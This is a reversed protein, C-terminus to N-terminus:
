DIINYYKINCTFIIGLIFEIELDDLGVRKLLQAYALIELFRIQQSQEDTFKGNFDGHAVIGRLDSLSEGIKDISFNKKSEDNYLYFINPVSSELAALLVTYSNVIKNKLGVSTDTTGIRSIVKEIYKKEEDTQAVKSFKKVEGLVRDRIQKVATIDAKIYLDKNARCEEEFAGFISVFTIPDYDDVNVRLASHPFHNLSINQNDAIFQLLRGIFPKYYIYNLEMQHGVCKKTISTDLEYFKGCEYGNEDILAMSYYGIDLDYRTLQLFKVVLKYARYIFDLDNTNKSFNINLKPHLMLDSNRGKNLIEGYSLSITLNIDEFSIEWVDVNERGYVLNGIEEGNRQKLLFYNAPNFFDDLADGVINFGHIAKYDGITEFIYKPVLRIDKNGFTMEVKKIFATCKHVNRSYTFIFDRDDIYKIINNIQNTPILRIADNEEYFVCDIDKFKTYGMSNM